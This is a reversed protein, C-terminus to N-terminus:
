IASNLALTEMLRLPRTEKPTRHGPVAKTDRFFRQSRQTVADEANKM